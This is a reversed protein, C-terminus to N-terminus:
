LPALTFFRDKRWVLPPKGLDEQAVVRGTIVHYGKIERVDEVKCELWASAGEPILNQGSGDSVTRLSFREFKDEEDGKVSGLKIALDRQEESAISLTFTGSEKILGATLHHQAVSVTLLPEKESVFMATATMIDRKAGHATGVFVVPCSLWGFVHNDESM